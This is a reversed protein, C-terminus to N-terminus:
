LEEKAWAWVEKLGEKLSTQPAFGLKARAKAINAGTSLQDGPRPPLRKINLKKGTLEEAIAIAQGTTSIEDTGINFIEGNINEINKVALLTGKVIDGVFSYSRKHHESGEFLPFEKGHKLAHFLKPFLKDPRERPGFVSFYRLICAGLEKRRVASMVAAEAALKTVGYPSVPAPLTNEDGTANLGYVSSTSCFILRTSTGKLAETLAVTAHFNNKIYSGYPTDSSNGPQAAAHIVLDTHELVGELPDIALDIQHLLIGSKSLQHANKHKLLPNYYGDINDLARM